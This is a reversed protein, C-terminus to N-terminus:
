SYQKAQRTKFGILMLWVVYWPSRSSGTQCALSSSAIVEPDSLMDIVGVQADRTGESRADLNTGISGSDLRNPVTEEENIEDLGDTQDFADSALSADVDLNMPVAADDPVWQDVEVVLMDLTSSICFTLDLTCDETCTLSGDVFGLSQCSAGNLEFGDCSESGQLAGDGCQNPDDPDGPHTASGEPLPPRAQTPGAPRWVCNPDLLEEANTLGDGDSDLACMSAWNQNQFVYDFGFGNRFSPGSRDTQPDGHCTTCRFPSPVDRLYRERSMASSAVTLVLFILTGQWATIKM